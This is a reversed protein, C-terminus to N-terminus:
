ESGAVKRITNFVRHMPPSSGFMGEFSQAQVQQQLERYEHELGALHFARKLIVKLEDLNAPKAIFHYAGSGVAQMATAKENQGSVIIIKASPDLAAMESLSAMGEQPTAPQPPLGLDLLVVQPHHKSFLDLASSRDAATLVEYEQTLAWKMQTRIEEDDDIILLKHMLHPTLRCPPPRPLRHRQRARNRSRYPWPAGRRHNQM